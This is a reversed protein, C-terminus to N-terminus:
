VPRRGTISAGSVRAGRSSRRADVSSSWANEEYTGAAVAIVVGDVVRTMADATNTFPKTRSGESGAGAFGNACVPVGVRECGGGLRPVEHDGCGDFRPACRSRRKRGAARNRRSM